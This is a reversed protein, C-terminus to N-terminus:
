HCSNGFGSKTSSILSHGRSAVAPRVMVSISVLLMLTGFLVVGPGMVGGSGSSGVRMHVGSLTLSRPRGNVGSITVIWGTWGGSWIDGMTIISSIVPWTVALWM